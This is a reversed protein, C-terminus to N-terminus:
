AVTTKTQTALQAGSLATAASAVVTVTAPVSSAPKGLSTLQAAIDTLSAAIATLAAVLVGDVAQRQQALVVGGSLGVDRGLQLLASKIRVLDASISLTSGSPLPTPMTAGALDVKGGQWTRIHFGTADQWFGGYPSYFRYGEPSVRDFVDNGSATNDDRTSRTVSGDFRVYLRSQSPFGGAVCRDGPKLNGFVLADRSDRTGVVLGYDSMRLVWAQTSSQGPTAPSPVGYYGPPGWLEAADQDATSDTANGVQCSIAGTTPDIGSWLVDKGVDFMEEWDGM